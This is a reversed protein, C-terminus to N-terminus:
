NIHEKLQKISKVVLLINDGWYRKQWLKKKLKFVPEEFWKSDIYYMDWNYEIKFDAKYKIERIHKWDYKFKEQLIFAPQLELITIWETKFFNYFRAELKSDFTIWDITTKTANYKTWNRKFM